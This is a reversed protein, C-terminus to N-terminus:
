GPSWDLRMLAEPCSLLEPQCCCSGQMYGTALGSCVIGSKKVHVCYCVGLVLRCHM